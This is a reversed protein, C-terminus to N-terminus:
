FEDSVKELLFYAWGYWLGFLWRAYARGLLLDREPAVLEDVMRRVNWPPNVPLDYDLRLVLAHPSRRGWALSVRFPFARLLGQGGEPYHRYCPWILRAAPLDKRLMLNNGQKGGPLFDKGWWPMWVSALGAAAQTLLPGFQFALFQGKFRGEPPAAPARSAAFVEDLEEWSLHRGNQQATGV